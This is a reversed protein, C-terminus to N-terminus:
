RWEPSAGKLIGPETKADEIQRCSQQASALQEAGRPHTDRSVCKRLSFNHNM